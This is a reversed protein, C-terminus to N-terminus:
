VKVMGNNCRFTFPSATVTLTHTHTHTHTHCLRFSDNEKLELFTPKERVM